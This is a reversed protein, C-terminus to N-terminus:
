YFGVALSHVVVDGQESSRRSAARGRFTIRVPGSPGGSPYVGCGLYGEDSPGPSFYSSGSPLHRVSLQAHALPDDEAYAGFRPGDKRWPGSQRRDRAHRSELKTLEARLKTWEDRTM